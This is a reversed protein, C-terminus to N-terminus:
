SFDFNNGMCLAIIQQSFKYPIAHWEKYLLLIKFRIRTISIIANLYQVRKYISRTVQMEQMFKQRERTNEEVEKQIYHWIRAYHVGFSWWSLFWLGTPNRSCPTDWQHDSAWWAPDVWNMLQAQSDMQLHVGQVGTNYAAWLTDLHTIRLLLISRM